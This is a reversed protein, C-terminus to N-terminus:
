RACTPDIRDHSPERGATADCGQEGCQTDVRRCRRLDLGFWKDREAPLFRTTLSTWLPKSAMSEAFTKLPPTVLFALVTAVAMASTQGLHKTDVFKLATGFSQKLRVDAVDVSYIEDLVLHTLFGASMFAAALWAVGEHRGLLYKFVAATMFASFAMALVSHWIGRHYSFHHFLTKGGYRVLLLTGVWMIFM